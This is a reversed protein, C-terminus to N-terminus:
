AAYGVLDSPTALKHSVSIESSSSSPTKTVHYRVIYMTLMSLNCLLTVVTRLIYRYQAGGNFNLSSWGINTKLVIVYPWPYVIELM